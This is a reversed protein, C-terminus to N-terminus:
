LVQPINLSPSFGKASTDCVRTSFEQNSEGNLPRADPGGALWDKFEEHASLEEATLNEFEGFDCEDFGRMEIPNKQPYIMKATEIQQKIEASVSKEVM